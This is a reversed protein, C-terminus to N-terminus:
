KNVIEEYYTRTLRWAPSKIVVLFALYVGSFLVFALSLRVPLYEMDKMTWWVGIAIISSLIAYSLGLIFHYFWQEQIERNAVRSYSLYEVMKLGMLGYLLYMINLPVLVVVLLVRAINLMLELQLVSESKGRALLLYNYPIRWIHLIGILLFIRLYPVVGIWKEGYLLFIIDRTYFIGFVFAPVFIFSLMRIIESIKQRVNSTDDQIKSLSSFLPKLVFQTPIRTALDNLSKGRNFLGLQAVGVYKGLLLVDMKQAVTTILNAGFVQSSFKWHTRIAKRSFHLSPSWGSKSFLVMATISAISLNFAVLSWVGYGSLAMWIALVSSIVLAVLRAINLWKYALNREMYARHVLTSGNIVFVLSLAQLVRGLGAMEYWSEIFPALFFFLLSFFLGLVLNLVFISSLDIEEMHKHRIISTHFGMVVMGESFAIFSMALALLGYEPPGLIRSLVISVVFGLVLNTMGGFSNWIIAVLSKRRISM